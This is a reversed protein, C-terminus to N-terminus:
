YNKNRYKMNTEYKNRHKSIEINIQKTTKFKKLDNNKQKNEQFVKYFNKLANNVLNQDIIQACNNELM